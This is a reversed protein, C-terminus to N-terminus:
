AASNKRRMAALGALGLGFLALSIPEPVDNQGGAVTYLNDFIVWDGFGNLTVRSIGASNAIGFFMPSCCAPSTTISELVNNAADYATYVWSNNVAGGWIGFASVANSFVLDFSLPSSSSNNLTKGGIGYSSAYSSDISMPSGNGVITVGPLALSAYDGDAASDFTEITAGALAADATSTILAANASGALLFMLLAFLRKM